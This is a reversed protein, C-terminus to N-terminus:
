IVIQHKEKFYKMNITTILNKSILLPMNGSILLEASFYPFRTSPGSFPNGIDPTSDLKVIYIVETHCLNDNNMKIGWSTVATFLRWLKMETNNCKKHDKRILSELANLISFRIRSLGTGPSMLSREHVYEIFGAIKM